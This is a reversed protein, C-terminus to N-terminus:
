LSFTLSDNLFYKQTHVKINGYQLISGIGRSISDILSKNKNDPHWTDWNKLDAVYNFVTSKPLEIVKESEISFKEDQTAVFVTLSVTVLLLLLLAYKLTKM